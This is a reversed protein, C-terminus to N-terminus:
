QVHPTASLVVENTDINPPVASDMTRIGFYYTIGNQLETFTYPNHWFRVVPVQDWPNPDTDVYLLYYIPPPNPPDVAMNWFVTAGSDGASVDTIGVASVWKPPTTDPSITISVVNTAFVNGSNKSSAVLMALYKKAPAAKRNVLTLGWTNGIVRSFSSYPYGTIEPCRLYVMTIDNDWDTVNIEVFTSSKLVPNIVDQKFGNIEYPEACHNPYNVDIAYDIYDKGPPIYMKFNATYETKPAFERDPDDKAFALYPNAILSGQYKFMTTWGDYNQLFRGEDETYVIARPDYAARTYCNTITMDFDIVGTQNNYSNVKVVPIPLWASFYKGEILDTNKLTETQLNEFDFTTTYLGVLRHYNVVNSDGDPTTPDSSKSCGTFLMFSFLFILIAADRFRMKIENKPRIGRLVTRRFRLWDVYYYRMWHPILFM